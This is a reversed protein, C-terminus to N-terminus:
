LMYIVLSHKILIIYTCTYDLTTKHSLKIHKGNDRM